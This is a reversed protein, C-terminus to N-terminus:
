GVLAPAEAREAPAVDGLRQHRCELSEFRAHFLVQMIGPELHLELALQAFPDAARRRQRVRWPEALAPAGVHPELAFVERVRTRVLDVVRDALRQERLPQADLADDRLRTGALVANRRGCRACTDAKRTRDVHARDIDLPLCRVDIAHPPEAGLNDRDFRAVLRQSRRDVLRQPFPHRIRRTNVVQQARRHPRV